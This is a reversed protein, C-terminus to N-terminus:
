YMDEGMPNATGLTRNAVVIVGCKLGVALNRSDTVRSVIRQESILHKSAARAVFVICPTLMCALFGMVRM